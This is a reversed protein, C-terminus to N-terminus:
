GRTVSHPLQKKVMANRLLIFIELWVAVLLTALVGKIVGDLLSHFLALPVILEFIIITGALVLFWVAVFIGQLMRIPDSSAM